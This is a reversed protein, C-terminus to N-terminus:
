LTKIKKWKKKKKEREEEGSNKELLKEKWHEV